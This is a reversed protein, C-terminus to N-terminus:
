DLKEFPPANVHYKALKRYLTMRSCNLSKAAEAKNGHCRELAELMRARESDSTSRYQGFVRQFVPPLHALHISGEPPDIFVAEILNRLERVNGPWDHAQLCRLLPEAVRGVRCRDRRNFEAITHDALVGVDDPRERLPPIVLRAINLRYFLDARFRQAAVDAELERNTAAVVRVDIQRSRTSGVPQVEHSELVRLLRAQAFLSLEGIEDLFLTGGDASAIAGQVNAHAGTFAGRMHGFLESEILSDPLAGCNVVVFPGPSRPGLEHVARAVREKGTGTEGTVLVTARSRAVKPLYARLATIASSTGVIATDLQWM